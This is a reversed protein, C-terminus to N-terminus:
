RKRGEPIVSVDSNDIGKLLISKMEELQQKLLKDFESQSILQASSVDKEKTTKYYLDNIYIIPVHLYAAAIVESQNPEDDISLIASPYILDGNNNERYLVYECYSVRNSDVNDRIPAYRERESTEIDLSNNQSYSGLDCNGMAALQEPFINTFVLRVNNANEIAIDLEIEEDIFRSKDKSEVIGDYYKDSIPSVCIYPRGSFRSKILDELIGGSGYANMVHIFMTFDIGTFEIYDVKENELKKGFIEVNPCTFKKNQRIYPVHRCKEKDKLVEESTPELKSIDLLKEQIEVGYYYKKITEINRLINYINIVAESNKYIAENLRNAFTKLKYADNVKLISEIFKMIIKYRNLEEKISSNNINKMLIDIDKSSFGNQVKEKYEIFNMNFLMLLIPNYYEFLHSDVAWDFEEDYDSIKNNSSTNNIEEKRKMYLMQDIQKLDELTKIDLKEKEHLILLYRLLYIDKENYDSSIFSVCLDYYINFNIIIDNMLYLKDKTNLIKGKTLIKIIESFVIFRRNEILINLRQALVGNEYRDEFAFSEDYDRCYVYKIITLMENYDMNDYAINNCIFNWIKKIFILNIGTVSDRKIFENLFKNNYLLPVNKMLYNCLKTSELLESNNEVSLFSPNYGKSIAFDFLDEYNSALEVLSPDISIFLKMIDDNERWIYNNSLEKKSPSYGKEIAYKIIEISIKKIKWIDKKIFSQFLNLDIDIAKRMLIDSSLLDPNFEIDEKTLVYGNQIALNILDDDYTKTYKLLFVNCEIAKKMIIKSSVLYYNNKLDEETPIYGLLIAKEFLDKNKKFLSLGFDLGKDEDLLIYKIFEPNVEIAKDMLFYLSGLNKSDIFDQEIPIFGNKVLNLTIKENIKIDYSVDLYKIFRNNQKLVLDFFIEYYKPLVYKIILSYNSVEDETIKYNNEQIKKILEDLQEKVVKRICGQKRLIENKELDIGKPVYGRKIAYEYIDITSNDFREKTLLSKKYEYTAFKIFDPNEDVAIEMVDINTGLDPYKIFDDEVLIHDGDIIEQILRDM